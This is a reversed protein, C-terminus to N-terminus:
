FSLMEPKFLLGLGILFMVIGGILRVARVYKSEVGVAKLSIMAVMFVIWDDLMFFVIYVVLYLYYQWAPLSNMTLVSTYIAPLGASCALEIMNVAVALGMIGLVALWLNRKGVVAKFKAFLKQRKEEGVTDCGGKRDKYWKRLMYGGAGVAFVGVLWRVWKVWGLVLFVNLWASLVLFYVVGSTVIFSLGLLWMRKRDKQGLLLSILFLLVWMACPNFGDLLGMVVTLVPLSLTKLDVQGWWPIKVVEGSVTAEDTESSIGLKNKVVSEILKGTTEQSDFGVYSWDGIVFFPVSGVEVGLEKGKVEWVALSSTLTTDYWGVKIGDYKKELERMFPKAAACHSCTPSYFFFVELKEKALVQSVSALFVGVMLLVRLWWKM